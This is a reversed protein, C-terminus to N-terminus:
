FSINKTASDRLYPRAKLISDLLLRDSDVKKHKVVFSDPAAINFDYSRQKFADSSDHSNCTVLKAVVFILLWAFRAIGWPNSKKDAAGSIRRMEKLKETLEHQLEPATALRQANEIWIEAEFRHDTRKNFTCIAAQEMVFAYKNRVEAFRYEPLTEILIIYGYSMLHAATGSTQDDFQGKEGKDRYYQLIAINNTLTKTISIWAQELDYDTMLLQNSLLTKFQGANTTRFSLDAANVFATYFYPSIWQIFQDDHYLPNDIFQFGEEITHSELFPRLVKDEEIANHYDIINDQRLAEFYDIIDGRTFQINNITLSDGSSLELEALLKKRGLQLAKKDIPPTLSEGLISSPSLYQM